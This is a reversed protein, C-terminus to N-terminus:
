NLVNVKWKAKYIFNLKKQKERLRNANEMFKDVDAQTVKSNAKSVEMLTVSQCNKDFYGVIAETSYM